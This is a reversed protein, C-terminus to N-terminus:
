LVFASGVFITPSGFWWLMITWTGGHVVKISSGSVVREGKEGWLRVEM